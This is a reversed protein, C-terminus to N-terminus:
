AAKDPERATRDGFQAGCFCFFQRLEHADSHPDPVSWHLHMSRGCGPCRPSAAPRGSLTNNPMTRM